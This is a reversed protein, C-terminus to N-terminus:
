KPLRELAEKAEQTLRAEPLGAALRQLLRRAEVTGRAELALVARVERLQEPDRSQLREQLGALRRRVEADETRASEEALAARVAEGAAALEQDAKERTDFNPSGLDALLARLREPPVSKVPQLRRALFADAEPLDALRWLARHAHVTDDSKLVAWLAEPSADKGTPPQSRFLLPLDWILVSSDAECGTALRWGSSAFAMSSYREKFRYVIKGTCVEYLRLKGAPELWAMLRSDPSVEVRGSAAFYEYEDEEVPGIERRAVVDWIWLNTANSVFLCRGDPTFASRWEQTPKQFPERREPVTLTAQRKGTAADWLHVKRWGQGTALTRGDPTLLLWSIPADKKELELQRRLKGSAVDWLRIDQDAGMTVLTRGDSTFTWDSDPAAKDALEVRKGTSGKYLFTARGVREALHQGGPALRWDM